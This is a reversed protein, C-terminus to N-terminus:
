VELVYTKPPIEKKKLYDKLAVKLLNLGLFACRTRTKLVGGLNDIILKEDFSSIEKLSKNKLLETLVCMGAKSIVCGSHKFSIKKIVLNKSLKLYISVIDSCNKNKGVIKIDFPVLSGYNVPNSYYDLIIQSPIYDDSM